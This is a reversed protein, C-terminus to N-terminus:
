SVAGERSGLIRIWFKKWSRSPPEKALVEETGKSSSLSPPDTVKQEDSPLSIIIKTLAPVLQTTVEVFLDELRGLLGSLEMMQSRMEGNINQLGFRHTGPMLALDRAEGFGEWKDQPSQQEITANFARTDNERAEDEGELFVIHLSVVNELFESDIEKKGQAFGAVLALDCWTNIRRPVGQTFVFISDLASDTFIASGGARALRFRIYDKTTEQDLPNIHYHVGVQQALQRLLPHSLRDRLSPQGVLVVQLLPENEAQLNSLLRLEELAVPGLNQAEDVILIVHEQRRHASQLFQNFAALRDERTPHHGQVSFERLLLELLDEAAFSTQYLVGIRQNNHHQTKLISKVLTTKGTGFEGTLVIFGLRSTLGYELYSRALKHQPSMYLFDPNPLLTFPRETLGYFEEYM